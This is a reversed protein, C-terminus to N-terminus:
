PCAIPKFEGVLVRYCHGVSGPDSLQAVVQSGNIMVFKSDRFTMQWGDPYNSGPLSSFGGEAFSNVKGDVFKTAPAAPAAATQSCGPANKDHLCAERRQAEARVKLDRAAEENASADALLAAAHDRHAKQLDEAAVDAAAKASSAKDAYDKAVSERRALLESSDRLAKSTTAACGSGCVVILMIAMLFRPSLFM